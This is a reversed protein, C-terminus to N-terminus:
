PRAALTEIATVTIVRNEAENEHTRTADSDSGNHALTSMVALVHFRTPM